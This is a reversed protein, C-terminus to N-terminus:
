GESRRKSTPDTEMEIDPYHNAPIKGLVPALSADSLGEILLPQLEPPDEEYGTDGNLIIFGQRLTDILNLTQWDQREPKGDLGVVRRQVDVGLFRFAPQPQGDDDKEESIEKWYMLPRILNRNAASIGRGANSFPFTAYIIAQRLPLVTEAYRPTKSNITDDAKVFVSTAEQKNGGAGKRFRLGSCIIPQRTM